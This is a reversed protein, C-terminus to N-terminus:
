EAEGLFTSKIVIFLRISNGTFPSIQEKQLASDAERCIVTKKGSIAPFIL